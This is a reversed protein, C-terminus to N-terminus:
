LTLTLSKLRTPQLIADAHWLHGCASQCDTTVKQAREPTGIGGTWLYSEKCFQLHHDHVVSPGGPVAAPLHSRQCLSALRCPLFLQHLPPTALPMPWENPSVRHKRPAGQSHTSALLAMRLPAAVRPCHLSASCGCSHKWARGKQLLIRPWHTVISPHQEPWM